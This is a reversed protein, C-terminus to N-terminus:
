PTVTHKLYYRRPSSRPASIGRIHAQVHFSTHTLLHTVDNFKGKGERSRVIECYTITRYLLLQPTICESVDFYM